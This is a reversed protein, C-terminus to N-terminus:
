SGLRRREAVKAALSEAPDDPDVTGLGPKRPLDGRHVKPRTSTGVNAVKGDAVLRRLQRYSYGSERAARQLSLEELDHDRLAAELENALDEIAKAVEPAYRRLEDARQRWACPLNKPEM